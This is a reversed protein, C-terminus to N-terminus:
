YFAITLRFRFTTENKKKKIIMQDKARLRYLLIMSSRFCIANARRPKYVKTRQERALTQGQANILSSVTNDQTDIM